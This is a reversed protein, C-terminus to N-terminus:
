PIRSAVKTALDTVFAVEADVEEGEEICLDKLDQNSSRIYVEYLGKRFLLEVGCTCNLSPGEPQQVEQSQLGIYAEDAGTLNIAVLGEWTHFYYMVAQEEWHLRVSNSVLRRPNNWPKQDSFYLVVAAQGNIRFPLECTIENRVESLCWGAPLDEIRTAINKALLEGPCKCWECESNGNQDPTGECSLALSIGLMFVLVILFLNLKQTKM